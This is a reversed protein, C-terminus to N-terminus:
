GESAWPSAAAEGAWRLMPVRNSRVRLVSFWILEEADDSRLVFRQYFLNATANCMRKTPSYSLQSLADNAVVLGDTRARSAGGDKWDFNEVPNKLLDANISMRGDV